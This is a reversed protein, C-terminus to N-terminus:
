EDDCEGAVQGPLSHDELRQGLTHDDDLVRRDVVHGVVEERGGRTPDDGTYDADAVREEGEVANPRLKTM